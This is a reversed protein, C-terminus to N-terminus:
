KLEYTVTVSAEIEVTGPQISVGASSTDAAAYSSYMEDSFSKYQYSTDQSGESIQMAAGLEDGEAAAIIEAKSRAAKVAGALAEAYKEDYTSCTYRVGDIGNVGAKVCADILTGVEEVKLDSVTFSTSAEFGELEPEDDSYDYQPDISFNTQISEQAIGADALAKMVGEVLTKNEETAAGAEEADTNVDFYVEARDPVEEESTKATVVVMRGSETKGSSEGETEDAFVPLGATVTMIGALVAALISRSIKRM